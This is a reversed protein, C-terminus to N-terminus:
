LNTVCNKAGDCTEVDKIFHWIKHFRCGEEVINKLLVRSVFHNMQWQSCPHAPLNANSQKCSPLCLKLEKGKVIRHM